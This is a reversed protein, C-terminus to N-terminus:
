RLETQMWRDDAEDALQDLLRESQNQLLPLAGDPRGVYVGEVFLQGYRSAVPAAAYARAEEGVAEIIADSACKCTVVCPLRVKPSRAEPHRVRVYWPMGSRHRSKANGFGPVLTATRGIQVSRTESGLDEGDPGFGFSANVRIYRDSVAALRAGCRRCAAIWDAYVTSGSGTTFESGTPHLLPKDM